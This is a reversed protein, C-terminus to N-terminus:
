HLAEETVHELTDSDDEDDASIEPSPKTVEAEHDSAQDDSADTNDCSLRHMVDEMAIQPSTVVAVKPGNNDALLQDLASDDEQCDDM